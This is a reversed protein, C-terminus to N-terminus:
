RLEAHGTEREDPAPLSEWGGRSSGRDAGGEAGGSGGGGGYSRSGSEVFYRDLEEAKDSTWEEPYADRYLPMMLFASMCLASVIDQAIKKDPLHYSRMQDEFGDIGKPIQLLGKSMLLKAANLYMFKKAGDFGLPTVEAEGTQWALEAIHKQSSTSDYGCFLTPVKYAAKWEDFRNIFPM